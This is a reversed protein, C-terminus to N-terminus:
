EYEEILGPRNKALLSILANSACMRTVYSKLSSSPFLAGRIRVMPKIRTGSFAFTINLFRWFHFTTDSDEPLRCGPWMDQMDVRTDM